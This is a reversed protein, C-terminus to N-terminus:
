LYALKFFIADDENDFRVVLTTTFSRHKCQNEIIKHGALRIKKIRATRADLNLWDETSDYNFLVFEIM